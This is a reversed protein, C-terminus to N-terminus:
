NLSSLSYHQEKRKTQSLTLFCWLFKFKCLKCQRVTQWAQTEHTQHLFFFGFFRRCDDNINTEYFSTTVKSIHGSFIAAFDDYLGSSLCSLCFNM